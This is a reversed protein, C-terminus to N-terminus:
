ILLKLAVLGALEHINPALSFPLASVSMDIMM